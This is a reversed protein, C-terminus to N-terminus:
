AHEKDLLWFFRRYLEYYVDRCCPINTRARLVDYSYGNTVALLIYPSLALSTEKCTEEVMNIKNAYFVRKLAMAETPNSYNSSKKVPVLSVGSSSSNKIEIELTDVIQKWINYQLCFHKLEYYRHKEIWYKSKTSLEPKIETSM